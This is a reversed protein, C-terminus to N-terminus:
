QVDISYECKFTKGKVLSRMAEKDKFQGEFGIQDAVGFWPELCIFPGPKTWVGLYPFGAFDMTIKHSSKKSKLSVVSSKLDKFIIADKGTFLDVSLPLINENNLVPESKGNLLGDTLLYRNVTEKKEFELYYDTFEEGQEIPCRLAPHAGISFYITKDDTNKVEYSVILKSKQLKYEITLEFNYPYLKLTEESSSLKYTLSQDQQDVLDFHMDRAFGHQPLEYVEDDSQYKNGALRGVIPFLVPARRGWFAPDGQWLFEKNAMTKKLSILEAGSSKVSVKLCENILIAVM